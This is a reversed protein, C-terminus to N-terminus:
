IIRALAIPKGIMLGFDTVVSNMLFCIPPYNKLLLILLRLSVIVKLSKKHKFYRLLEVDSTECKVNSM